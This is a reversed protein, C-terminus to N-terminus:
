LSPKFSDIPAQSGLQLLDAYSSGYSLVNEGSKGIKVVPTGPLGLM